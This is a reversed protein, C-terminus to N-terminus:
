DDEKTRVVSRGDESSAEGRSGTTRTRPALLRLLYMGDTGAAQPLLRAGRGWPEWPGGPPELAEIGPLDVATEERTLTCVSYALTGGPRVLGLASVLLCGHPQTSGPIHIPERDCNTLDVVEASPM